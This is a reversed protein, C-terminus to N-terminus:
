SFSFNSRRTTAITTITTITITIIPQRPRSENTTLHENKSSINSLFSDSLGLNYYYKHKTALDVHSTDTLIYHFHQVILLTQSSLTQHTKNSNHM